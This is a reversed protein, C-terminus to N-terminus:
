DLGDITLTELATRAGSEPLAALVERAQAAYDHAVDRARHRGDYEEVYDRAMDLDAEDALGRQVLAGLKPNAKWACLLPATVDSGGAEWERVDEMIQQAIGMNRAYAYAVDPLQGRCGGLVVAARAGKAMLSAGGLYVRRVYSAWADAPSSTAVRMVTGEVTNAIAAAILEVAEAAGLAALASSARGLLFDGGLIALKNGHAAESGAAVGEHLVSATHIMAIIQALRVQTPLLIPSASPDLPARPHAITPPTQLPFPRAFSARDDRMHPAADTVLSSQTLPRDLEAAREFGAANVVNRWNRGLGNTAQALLLVLLPRLQQAPQTLFDRAADHLGPHASGLLGLLNNRILLLEPSLLAYPDPRVRATSAASAHPLPPPPPPPAPQQAVKSQLEEWAVSDTGNLALLMLPASRGETGGEVIPIVIIRGLESDVMGEGGEGEAGEGQTELWVEGAIGVVVRIEDKPRLSDAAYSILQGATTFLVASHLSPPDLVQALLNQLASLVLM